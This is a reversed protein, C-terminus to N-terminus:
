KRGRQHLNKGVKDRKKEAINLDKSHEQSAHIEDDTMPVESYNDISDDAAIYIRNGMRISTTNNVFTKQEDAQFRYKDIQKM